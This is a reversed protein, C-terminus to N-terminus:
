FGSKLHRWEEVLIMTFAIGTVIGIPILAVTMLALGTSLWAFGGLLACGWRRLAYARWLGLLLAGHLIALLLVSLFGSAPLTFGFVTNQKAAMLYFPLFGLATIILLVLACKQLFRAGASPWTHEASYDNMTRM